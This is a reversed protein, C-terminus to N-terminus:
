VRFGFGFGHTGWSTLGRDCSRLALSFVWDFDRLGKSFLAARIERLNRSCTFHGLLSNEDSALAPDDCSM